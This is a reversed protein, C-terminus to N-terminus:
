GSLGVALTVYGDEAGRRDDREIRGLYDILELAEGEDLAMAPMALRRGDPAQGKSVARALSSADRYGRESTLVRWTIDPPVPRGESSGRGDYGHCHVCARHGAADQRYINRGVDAHAGVATGLLTAIGFVSLWRLFTM